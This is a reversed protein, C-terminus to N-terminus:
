PILNQHVCWVDVMIHRLDDKDLTAKLPQLNSCMPSLLKRVTALHWAHAPIM